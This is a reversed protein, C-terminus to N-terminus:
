QFRELLLTLLKLFPYLVGLLFNNTSLFLDKVKRASGVVVLLLSDTQALLELCLVPLAVLQSLLAGVFLRGDLARGGFFWLPIVKTWTRIISLSFSSFARICDLGQLFILLPFQILRLSLARSATLAETILLLAWNL